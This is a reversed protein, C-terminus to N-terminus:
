LKVGYTEELDYKFAEKKLMPIKNTIARYKMDIEKFISILAHDTTTGRIEALILIENKLNVILEPIADNAGRMKYLREFDAVHEKAKKIKTQLEKIQEPTRKLQRKREEILKQLSM